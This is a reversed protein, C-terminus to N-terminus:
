GRAEADAVLLVLEHSGMRLKKARCHQAHQQYHGRKQNRRPSQVPGSAPRRTGPVRTGPNCSGDCEHQAHANHTRWRFPTPSRYTRHEREVRDEENQDRPNRLPGFPARQMGQTKCGAARQNVANVRVSCLRQDAAHQTHADAGRNKEGSCQAKYTQACPADVAVPHKRLPDDFYFHLGLNSVATAVGNVVETTTARDYTALLKGGGSRFGLSWVNTHQLAMVGLNPDMGMETVQEGGPGIVFDSTTQFGNLTPDCSTMNQISGKAV